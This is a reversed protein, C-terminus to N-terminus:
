CDIRLGILSPELLGSPPLKLTVAAPVRVLRMQIHNWMIQSVGWGNLFYQFVYYFRLM